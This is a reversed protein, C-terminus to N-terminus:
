TDAQMELFFIINFLDRKILDTFFAELPFKENNKMIQNRMGKFIRRRHIKPEALDKLKLTSSLIASFLTL